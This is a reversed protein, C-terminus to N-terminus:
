QLAEDVAYTKGIRWEGNFLIADYPVEDIKDVISKIRDAKM